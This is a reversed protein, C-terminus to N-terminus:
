RRDQQLIQLNLQLLDSADEGIWILVQQQRDERPQGCCSTVTGAVLSYIFHIQDTMGLTAAELGLM